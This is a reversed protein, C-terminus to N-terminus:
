FQAQTFVVPYSPSLDNIKRRMEDWIQRLQEKRYTSKMEVAIQSKGNSSISTVHDVYPLQQIANELPFTVEEEVQQPSAGPYMTIVMAQKLTFEPDELQGLDFYSVSGGILLLLAFMWSIVKKKISFQAFSM